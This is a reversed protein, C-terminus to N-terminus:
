RAPATGNPGTSIFRAMLKGDAASFANVSVIYGVKLQSRDVPEISTLVANSAVHVKRTGGPFTVLLDLSTSNNSAQSVTGNTMRTTTKPVSSQMPTASQITGNTMRTATSTDMVREGEGFKAGPPFVHIEVANGGDTTDVNTTGIFSGPKIAAITTPASIFLTTAPTVGVVINAGQSDITIDTPSVAAVKGKIIQPPQQATGVGSGLATLLAISISARAGHSIRSMLRRWKNNAVYEITLM